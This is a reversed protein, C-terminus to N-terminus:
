FLLDFTHLPDVVDTSVRNMCDVSAAHTWFCDHVSAFLIGERYCHLATLMMHCSDLSHIFNPPFANKQKIPNPPPLSVLSDKAGKWTRSKEALAAARTLASIDLLQRHSSSGSWFDVELSRYASKVYPQVVPLGLPTVWSIRCSLDKTIHRSLM